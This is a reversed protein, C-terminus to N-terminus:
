CSEQCKKFALLIPASDDDEYTYRLILRLNKQTELFTKAQVYEDEGSPQKRYFTLVLLGNTKLLSISQNLAMLTSEVQTTMNSDSKPLYGSNFIFADVPEKVYRDLHEHSDHILTLNTFDKCKLRTREIAQAQIDFAYVSKFHQCCFLTDNGNGASLDVVTAESSCHERLVRFAVTTVREFKM